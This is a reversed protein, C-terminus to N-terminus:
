KNYRCCLKGNVIHLGITDLLYDPIGGATKVESNSDYDAVAMLDAIKKGGDVLNGNANLTAIDDATAGSVKDSKANIATYAGGSTVPNTSNQTPSSDVTQASINGSGDSKIIGATERLAKGARLIDDIVSATYILRIGM